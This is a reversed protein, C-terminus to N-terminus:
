SGCPFPWQWFRESRWRASSGLGNMASRFRRWRFSRCSSSSSERSSWIRPASSPPRGALCARASHVSVGNESHWDRNLHFQLRLGSPAGALAVARVDDADYGLVVHADTIGAIWASTLTRVLLPTGGVETLLKSHSSNNKFRDGNGAGV